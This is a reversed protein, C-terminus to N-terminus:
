ELTASKKLQCGTLSECTWRCHWSDSSSAGGAVSHTVLILKSEIKEEWKKQTESFYLLFVCSWCKWVRFPFKTSVSLNEDCPCISTSVRIEQSPLLLLWCFIFIRRHFASKDTCNSCHQTRRGRHRHFQHHHNKETCSSRNLNKRLPLPIYYHFAM